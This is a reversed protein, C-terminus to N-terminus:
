VFNRNLKKIIEKYEDYSMTCNLIEVLSKTSIYSPLKLYDVLIKRNIKGNPPGILGDDFLDINKIPKSGSNVLSFGINFKEFLDVLIEKDLGELGLKGEKSYNIKRSEKGLIEPIYINYIEGDRVFSKIFNRIKFGAVDCDTAIVIGVKLALFKILSIKQPDKFIRFGDTQIISADVISSLKIKDYKGEVIVAKDVKIM